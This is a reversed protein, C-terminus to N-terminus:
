DWNRDVFAVAAAAAVVVADITERCEVLDRGTWGISHDLPWM